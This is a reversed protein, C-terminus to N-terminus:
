EGNDFRNARVEEKLKELINIESMTIYESNLAENIASIADIYIFKNNTEYAPKLCRPDLVLRRYSDTM